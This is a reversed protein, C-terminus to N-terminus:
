KRDQREKKIEEILEPREQFIREFEELRMGAEGEERPEIDHKSKETLM